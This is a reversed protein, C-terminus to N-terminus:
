RSVIPEGIEVRMSLQLVGKQEPASTSDWNPFMTVLAQYLGEILTHLSNLPMKVDRFRMTAGGDDLSLLIPGSGVEGSVIQTYMHEHQNRLKRLQDIYGECAKYFQTFGEQAGVLSKACMCARYVSSICNEMYESFDLIYFVSSNPHLTRADLQMLITDRAQNYHRAASVLAHLLWARWRRQVDDLHPEPLFMQLHSHGRLGETNCSLPPM